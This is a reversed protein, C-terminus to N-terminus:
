LKSMLYGIELRYLCIFLNLCNQRVQLIKTLQKQDECFFIQTRSNDAIYHCAEVSLHLSHTHRRTNGKTNTTYIGTAIGGAQISCM